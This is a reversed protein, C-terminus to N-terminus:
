FITRDWLLVRIELEPNRDLLSGLFDGLPLRAGDASGPDLCLAAVFDWGIIVIRRRAQELCVALTKFYHSNTLLAARGAVSTRWCNRGPQLLVPSLTEGPTSDPPLDSNWM